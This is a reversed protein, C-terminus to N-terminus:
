RKAPEFRLNNVYSKVMDEYNLPKTGKVGTVITNWFEDKEPTAVVNTFGCDLLTDLFEPTHMICVHLDSLYLGRGFITKEWFEKRGRYNVKWNKVCKLFEPYTIIIRGQPKLVRWCDVLIRKHFHKHIHEITHFCVIEDVSKDKYPLQQNVFNHILDPKVNPEIDINVYGDIKNTGCGINLKLSM